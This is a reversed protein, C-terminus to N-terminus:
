EGLLVLIRNFLFLWYEMCTIQLVSQLVFFISLSGLFIIYNFQRPIAFQIELQIEKTVSSNSLLMTLNTSWFIQSTTIFRRSSECRTMLMNNIKVHSHYSTLYFQM